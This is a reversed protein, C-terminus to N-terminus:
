HIKTFLTKTGYGRKNGVDWGLAEFFPDVFEKRLRFEKYNASCYDAKNAEFREVLEQVILPVTM